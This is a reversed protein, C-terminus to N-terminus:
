ILLTLIERRIELSQHAIEIAKNNDGFKSYWCALDALSSAYEDSKEGWLNRTVDLDQNGVKIAESYNGLLYYCYAIRYLISSYDKNVVEKHELIKKAREFYSIAKKYDKGKYADWGEDAITEYDELRDSENVEKIRKQSPTCSSTIALAFVLFLGCVM